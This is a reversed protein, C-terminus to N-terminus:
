GETIGGIPVQTSKLLSNVRLYEKEFVQGGTEVGRKALKLSRRAATLHGMSLQVEAIKLHIAAEEPHNRLARRYGLIADDYCGLDYLGGANKLTKPLDDVRFYKINRQFTKSSAPLDPFAVVLHRFAWFDPAFHAVQRSERETLWFIAKIASEVLYERHMNLARYANSYGRGGGFRLDRVFFIAEGHLAHEKLELPIDYHARDVRYHLVTQGSEQLAEALRTAAQKRTIESHYAATVLLPRQWRIALAVEDLIRQLREDLAAGSGARPM